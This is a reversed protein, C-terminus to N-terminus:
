FFRELALVDLRPQEAVPACRWAKIHKTYVEITDDLAIVQVHNIDDPRAVAAWRQNSVRIEFPAVRFVVRIDALVSLPHFFEEFLKAKRAANGTVDRRLGGAANMFAAFEAIREAM